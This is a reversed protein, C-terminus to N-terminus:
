YEVMFVLYPRPFGMSLFRDRSHRMDKMGVIMCEPQTTLFALTSSLGAPQFSMIPSNKLHDDKMMSTIYVLSNTARSM